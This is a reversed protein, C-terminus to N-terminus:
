AVSNGNWRFMEQLLSEGEYSNDNDM